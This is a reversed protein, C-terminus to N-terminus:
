IPELLYDQIEMSAGMKMYEVAVFLRTKGCRKLITGEYGAFLGSKVRVQQGKILRSEPTLPADLAILDAIQALDIRLREGDLVHTMTTVRNTQLASIREKDGGRLFLYGTFLPIKSIRTKGRSLSKRSIVPLYHPVQRAALHEAVKKEQRSRTYVLWWHSDEKREDACQGPLPQELLNVPFLYPLVVAAQDQNVPTQFSDVSMIGTQGHGLQASEDIAAMSYGTHRSRGHQVSTIAVFLHNLRQESSIWDLWLGYGNDSFNQFFRAEKSSAGDRVVTVVTIVIALFIDPGDSSCSGTV